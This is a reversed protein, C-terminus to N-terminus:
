VTMPLTTTKIRIPVSQNKYPILSDGVIQSAVTVAQRAIPEIYRSASGNISICDGLAYIGEASTMLTTPDVEIGLNWILGATKALRDCTRLGTAVLVADVTLRRENSLHIDYGNSQAPEVLTEVLPEVSPQVKLVETQGLFEIPLNEWAKLLAASQSPDKLVRELPRQALDVLTIAHGGLALDNAIESGILGAGVVLVRRPATGLFTRFQTYQSLHNVRWCYQPPLHESLHTQAGQALVLHQFHFSGLTTRVINRATNISVATTKSYLATDLRKAADTGTEKVLESVALSRAIAVSLLPKDYRHADCQAVMAISLTSSFRRLAEVMAWAATGGGVIVVDFAKTNSLRANSSRSPKLVSTASSIPARVNRTEMLVFDAKTVGCIPCYWDDPIDEYRTGPPLGGDEDGVGENYIYGCAKCLYERWPDRKSM